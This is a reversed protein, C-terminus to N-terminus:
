KDYMETESLKANKENKKELEKKSNRYDEIEKLKKEADKGDTVVYLKTTENPSVIEQSVYIALPRATTKKIMEIVAASNDKVRLKKDLINKLEYVFVSYTPGRFEKKITVPIQMFQFKDGKVITVYGKIGDNSVANLILDGMLDVYSFKKEYELVSKASTSLAKDKVIVITSPKSVPILTLMFTKETTIVALDVPEDDNLVITFEDVGPGIQDTSKSTDINLIKYPMKITNVSKGSVEVSVPYDTYEVTIKNEMFVKTPSPSKEPFVVVQKTVSTPKEKKLFDEAFVLNGVLCIAVAILIKKRM